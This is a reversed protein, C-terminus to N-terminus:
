NGSASQVPGRQVVLLEFSRRIEFGLKRYVNVAAVNEPRTHLFPTEGRRLIGQAVAAVLDAAYGQGRFDPHTCVASIETFGPVRMREGAMAAMRGERRVGRYGGLEITRPGFPGPRTLATLAVMEDVDAATMAIVEDSVPHRGANEPAVCVMQALPGSAIVTWGAPLEPAADLFLAVANGSTALPELAAFAAADPQRLAALSTVAAPYRKAWGDGEAWQAHRTSLAQWIPRDLVSEEATQQGTGSQTM